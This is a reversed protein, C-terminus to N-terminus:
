KIKGRIKNKKNNKKGWMKKPFEPANSFDWTEENIKSKGSDLVSLMM